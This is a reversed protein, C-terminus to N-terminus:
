RLLLYVANTLRLLLYVANSYLLSRSSDIGANLHLSVRQFNLILSFSLCLIGFFAVYQCLPVAFLVKRVGKGSGPTPVISGAGAESM